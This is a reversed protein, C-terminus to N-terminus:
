PPQTGSRDHAKGDGTRIMFADLLISGPRLDQPNYGQLSHLNDLTYEQCWM